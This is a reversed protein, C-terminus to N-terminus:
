DGIKTTQINENNIYGIYNENSKNFLISSYNGYYYKNNKPKEINKIFNIKSDIKFIKFGRFEKDSYDISLIKSNDSYVFAKSEYLASSYSYRDGLKLKSQLYPSSLNSINFLQLQIGIVRGKEDADRGISLLHDKDVYHFYTSYGPIELESVQIPNYPNVLDLIYLPDTQKFTVVFAKDGFFRVSKVTEGKKGLSEISSIIENNKIIFLSNNTDNRWSNGQTTVVRLNGNYESLSFKNNVRGEV